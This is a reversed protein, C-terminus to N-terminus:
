CDLGDWFFLDRFGIWDYYNSRIKLFNYFSQTGERDRRSKPSFYLQSMMIYLDHSLM